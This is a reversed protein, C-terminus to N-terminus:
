LASPHINAAMCTRPHTTGGRATRMLNPMPIYTPGNLGFHDKLALGSVGEVAVEEQVDDKCAHAVKRAM